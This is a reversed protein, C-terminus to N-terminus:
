FRFQGWVGIESYTGYNQGGIQFANNSPNANSPNFYGNDVRDRKYVIALDVIKVPEFNIGVNFYREKLTPFLDKSPKTSDYRGFVSFTKYFVFSGWAGYGESHDDAAALAALNANTASAVRNWDKTWFYEGGVRLRPSVYALVADVRQATHQPQVDFGNQVPTVAANAPSFPTDTNGGRKGSYGGVAATFGKYNASIRGEVDMTKSRMPNRYGAGDIVSVAYSIHGDAFSGFAHVGWDASTGFSTRDILTNEVFRYGYLDEVFPVWPLDASGARVNFAKSLSAQLYAKKLYLTEGINKNFGFVPQAGNAGSNAPFTLTSGPAATTGNVTNSNAILSVDTTVNASFIDNFKHDVGIYFRKIDFATSRAVGKGDSKQSINSVNFYMRGSISTGDYWKPAPAKGPKAQAAALKTQEVQVQGAAANAQTAAATAQSAAAQANAVGAVTERQAAESVDLRASLTAVQEQLAKIQEILVADRSPATKHVPHKKPAADAAAPLLALASVGALLAKTITM